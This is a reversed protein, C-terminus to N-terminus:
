SLIDEDGECCPMTLVALICDSNRLATNGIIKEGVKDNLFIGNFTTLGFDTLFLESTINRIKSIFLFSVKIFM